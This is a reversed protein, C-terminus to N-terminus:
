IPAEAEVEGGRKDITRQVKPECSYFIVTSDDISILM